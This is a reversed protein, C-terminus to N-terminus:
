SLPTVSLKLLQIAMTGSSTSGGYVLVDHPKEAPKEPSAALSLGDWLALASTALATGLSAAEALKMHDPVKLVLGAPARLYQAFAGNEPGAPNSGHIAGCVRDGTKLDPRAEAAEVDMSIITGAFDMGVIAGPTPFKAGMKFDSPNLAVAETKVLITNRQPPPLAVDQVIAPSGAEDQVIATQSLPLQLLSPDLSGMTILLDGQRPPHSKIFGGLFCPSRSRLLM